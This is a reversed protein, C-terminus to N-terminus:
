NQEPKPSLAQALEVGHAVDAIFEGVLEIGRVAKTKGDFSVAPIQKEEMAKALELYRGALHFLSNAYEKLMEPTHSGYRHSEKRRGPKRGWHAAMHM